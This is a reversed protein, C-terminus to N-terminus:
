QRNSSGDSAVCALRHPQLHALAAFFSVGGMLFNRFNFPDPTTEKQFNWDKGASVVKTTVSAPECM